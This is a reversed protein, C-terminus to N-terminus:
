GLPYFFMHALGILQVANVLSDTIMNSLARLDKIMRGGSPPRKYAEAAQHAVRRPKLAAAEPQSVRPDSVALRCLANFKIEVAHHAIPILNM